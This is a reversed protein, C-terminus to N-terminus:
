RISCRSGEGPPKLRPARPGTDSPRHAKATPMDMRMPKATHVPARDEHADLLWAAGFLELRPRCLVSLVGLAELVGSKRRVTGTQAVLVRLRVLARLTLHHHQEDDGDQGRDGGDPAVEGERHVT